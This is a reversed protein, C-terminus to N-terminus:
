LMTRLTVCAARREFAMRGDAESQLVPATMPLSEGGTEQQLVPATMALREGPQNGGFIYKALVRFGSRLGSDGDARMPTSAIIFPTYRRFEVDGEQGIVTYEPQGLNGEYFYTYGAWGAVLVVLLVACWKLLRRPLKM